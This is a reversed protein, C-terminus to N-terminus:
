NTALPAIVDGDAARGYIVTDPPTGTRALPAAPIIAAPGSRVIERDGVLAHITKVGIGALVLYPVDDLSIFSGAVVAGGRNSGVAAGRNSGSLGGTGFGLLIEGETADENTDQEGAAEGHGLAVSQASFRGQEVIAAHPRKPLKGTWVIRLPQPARLARQPDDEALETLRRQSAHAALWVARADGGTLAKRLDAFDRPSTLLRGGIGALYIETQGDSAADAREPIVFGKPTSNIISVLGDAILADGSSFRDANVYQWPAGDDPVVISHGAAVPVDPTEDSDRLSTGAVGWGLQGQRTLEAVLDGGELMVTDREGVRGAWLVTVDDDADPGHFTTDDDSESRKAVVERWRDVAGAIADDDKALSGRLPFGRHSAGRVIEGKEDGGRLLVVALLVLVAVAVAAAAAVRTHKPM